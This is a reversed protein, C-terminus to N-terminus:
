SLILFIITFGVPYNTIQGLNLGPIKLIYTRLIVTRSIQRVYVIYCVNAKDDDNLFPHYTLILVYTYM